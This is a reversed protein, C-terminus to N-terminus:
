GSRGRADVTWRGVVEASRTAVFSDYLDIAPCAHNPVVAVVEGIRPKRAGVSFRVQGHYDSVREIVGDAYAPIAGFGELYAPSDKTLSKAGADIVVQDAVADSVVTAAIAIAVGDPPSSGLAVQQRDGILYTGARMETVPPRASQTATPSSGASLVTPEINEARLAAAATTLVEVEDAGAAARAEPGFYGHGGHTFAGIVELGADQAARAVEGANEAATGTRGYHADIELVVRLRARSGTMARALQRAGDISDCGVAFTLGPREALARLRAAKPGSAWIPYALFIDAIGGEAMVEAEGLTGVTIGAAGNDLQIRALAVSKHTKVHPRLAVGNTRMSDAMRRANREVVDLDIVLTPTDLNKPLAPAIPTPLTM